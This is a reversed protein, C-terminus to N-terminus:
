GRLLRWLGLSCFVLSLIVSWMPHNARTVVRGSQLFAEVDLWAIAGRRYWGQVEISRGLWDTPHRPHMLLNGFAGLMSLYHLKLLGTPTKVILDQCLWNASGRRGMLVGQLRVPQSDTPLTMPDRLLTPLPPYPQRNNVTIDPFYPNIRVMIGMGISLFLLGWLVSRDGYMWGIRRLGLPEFIGSLFWLGMAVGIGLIPGIYPSIQQLFPVWRDRFTPQHASGSRASPQPFPMEPPLQWRLAYVTLRKLREGLRAHSANISLWRRYPNHIDWELVELFSADPFLSGPSIAAEYGIPTLVDTSELLPPTERAQEITAAIGATLKIL